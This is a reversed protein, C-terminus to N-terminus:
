DKTRSTADLASVEDFVAALEGALARRDFRRLAALDACHMALRDSRWEHVIEALTRDISRPDAPDVTWGGGTQTLVDTVAGTRVMALVPKQARLYEYLKAPVLEVTDSSAQLLLLLDAGALQRLSEDYPVRASLSVSGSLGAAEMASQVEATDGYAGGGIFRIELESASLQGDHVMRGFAQFLPRPDRYSANINGAHLICLRPGRASPVGQLDAFDAEDYGNLIARIKQEPADFYRERLVDRLHTTSTVVAACRRVVLRELWRNVLLFIRGDPAGPEPPDEIWPDRFDAVWPKRSIAALRAAILHATAHPSTSYIADVPDTTMLQRGAAVAWPMWGIWVDPLALLAPYRGRVSLHRKINLYRTRIVRTSSSIQQELQSDCVTYASTHPTIVTVRWGREPLYRSYKLTRLVGSSSAEPPYHFAVFLAHRL